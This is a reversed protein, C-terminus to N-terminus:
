YPRQFLVLRYTQLVVELSHGNPEVGKEHRSSHLELTPDRVVFLTPVLSERVRLHRIEDIVQVLHYRLCEFLVNIPLTGSNILLTAM